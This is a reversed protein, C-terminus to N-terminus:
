SKRVVTRRTKVFFMVMGFLVLLSSVFFSNVYVDRTLVKLMETQFDVFPGGILFGAPGWSLAMVANYRSLLRGRKHEPIVDGAFAFGVTKITMFALGSLGYIAAMLFVGSVFGYLLPIIVALSMGGLVVKVRGIIDSLRGLVVSALMGGVTWTAVILGVKVDSANLGDEL